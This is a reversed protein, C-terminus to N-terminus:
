EGLYSLLNIKANQYNKRRLVYEKQLNLYKESADLVDLSTKVGLNYESLIKSFVTKWKEMREEMSHILAHEHKLDEKAM